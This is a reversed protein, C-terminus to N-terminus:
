SRKPSSMPSGLRRLGAAVPARREPQFRPVPPSARRVSARLTAAPSLTPIVVFGDGSHHLDFREFTERLAANLAKVDEGADARSM